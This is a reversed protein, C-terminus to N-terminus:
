LYAFQAFGDSHSPTWQERSLIKGGILVSLIGLFFAHLEFDMM